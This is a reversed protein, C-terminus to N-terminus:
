EEMHSLAPRGVLDPQDPPHKKACARAAAQCCAVFVFSDFRVTHRWSSLNDLIDKGMGCSAYPLNGSYWGQGSCLPQELLFWGVMQHASVPGTCEVPIWGDLFDGGNRCVDASCVYPIFAMYLSTEVSPTCHVYSGMGLAPICPPSGTNWVALCVSCPRDHRGSTISIKPTDTGSRLHRGTRRLSKVVIGSVDERGNRRGSLVGTGGKRGCRRM